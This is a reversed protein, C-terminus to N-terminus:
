RRRDAAMSSAAPIVGGAARRVAPANRGRGVPRATAGVSSDLYRLIDDARLAAADKFGYNGVGGPSLPVAGEKRLRQIAAVGAADDLAGRLPGQGALQNLVSDVGAGENAGTRYSGVAGALQRRTALDGIDVKRTGQPLGAANIVNEMEGLSREHRAAREGAEPGLQARAERAAGALERSNAVEGAARINTPSVRGAADFARRIDELERPNTWRPTIIVAKNTLDTGKPILGMAAAEDAMMLNEPHAREVAEDTIDVVDISKASDRVSKALGRVSMGPLAKQDRMMGRMRSLAKDIMPQLSVMDDGVQANEAGIAGLRTNIDGQVAKGLEPVAKAQAVGAPSIVEGADTAKRAAEEAAEYTPGKEMGRLWHTDGGIAEASAIDRGRQEMPDRIARRIGTAAAGLGSMAGGLVGGVLAARGAGEVPRGAVLDEGIDEAAAGGAGALAGRGIKALAGGGKVVGGALKGALQATRSALSSPILAGGIAGIVQSVPYRAAAAEGRARTGPDVMEGLTTGAGFAVSRDLGHLGSRLYGLIDEARSPAPASGDGPMGTAPRKPAGPALDDYPSGGASSGGPGPGVADVPADHLVAEGINVRVDPGDGSAAPGGPEMRFRPSESATENLRARIKAKVGESVGPNDLYSELKARLKPDPM